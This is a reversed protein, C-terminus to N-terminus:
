AGPDPSPPAPPADDPAAEAPRQVRGSRATVPHPYGEPASSAAARGPPRGPPAGKATMITALARPDRVGLRDYSQQVLRAVSRANLRLEQAIQVFSWGQIFLWCVERQSESLVHDTALRPRECPSLVVAYRAGERGDVLPEVAVWMGHFPFVRPGGQELTARLRAELHGRRRGDLLRQASCTQESLGSEVGFVGVALSAARWAEDELDAARRLGTALPGAGAELAALHRKSPPRDGFLVVVSGLVEDGAYFTGVLGSPMAEVGEVWAFHNPTGAPPRLVANLGYPTPAGELWDLDVRAGVRLVGTCLVGSAGADAYGIFLVTRAAAQQRFSGLLRRRLEEATRCDAASVESLVRHFTPAHPIEVM